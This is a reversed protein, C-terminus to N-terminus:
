VRRFKNRIFRVRMRNAARHTVVAPRRAADAVSGATLRLLFESTPECVAAVRGRHHGRGPGKKSHPRPGFPSVTRRLRRAPGARRRRACRAVAARICRTSRERKKGAPSAPAPSGAGPRPREGPAASQAPAGGPPAELYATAARTLRPDDQYFGLGSNCTRCLLGRVRGTAHCHDVCLRIGSQRKCIGCVGGQRALMADYDALSLGYRRLWRARDYKRVRTRRQRRHKSDMQFRARRKRNLGARHTVRYARAHELRRRRSDPDKLGREALLERRRALAMQRHKEDRYRRPLTSKRKKRRAM